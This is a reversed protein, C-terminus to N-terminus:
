FSFNYTVAPVISFLYTKYAVLTLPDDEAQGIRVAWANKRAYANYVSFNLGHEWRQDPRKKKFTWTAGLDLRHYSPLRYNNRDAYVGFATGNVIQSGVPLTQVRGSAFIFTASFVWQPNFNYNMVATIYHPFDSIARYERGENVGAITRFSRSYTYSLWGNVKGKNRRAMVEFGYSRGDGQRLETEPYENFGVEAFDKYDVQNQLWKYYTEVSLEYAGEKLSQFFGLAVQDSIPPDIYRNVPQWIDSPFSIASNSLQNVYQVTRDYSAKLSRSENLKYRVALRPELNVFHELFERDYSTTDLPVNDELSEYTRVDQPGLEGFHSLRLGYRLSVRPSLDLEHDWYLGSELGYANPVKTENFFSESGSPTFRGRYVALYKSQLGFNITGLKNPYWNFDFKLEYNELGADLKASNNEAVQFDFQYNFATYVASTNLFLKNSFVHNWRATFTSNGWNFGFVDQADLVDRGTYASIFLRDKDSFRYNAKFNGDWFYLINNNIDEDPSLRLFLDAYTRRGSVLFSGKGGNIPGELTLRSSILGIGGTASFRQSNGERMRVDLVSALRGGYKSPIGSKYLELDRIADSNFVSFFGLLHSPNYVLAEDLLIQNQDAGGGRVNFGTNGDGPSQVGPLLQVARLPDAEGFLMPITKITEISLRERGMDTANVRDSQASVEMGASSFDAMMVNLRVDQSADVEQSFTKYGAIQAQVTYTGPPVSISYFGYENTSAGANLAEIYVTAGLMDEGNASDRVYGSITVTQATASLGLLLGIAVGGLQALRPRFHRARFSM